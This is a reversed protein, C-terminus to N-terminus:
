IKEKRINEVISGGRIQAMSYRMTVWTIVFVGFICFMVAFWPFSYGFGMSLMMFRHILYSAACGLPLGFILAKVSCLISELGLMRYLGKHTMGVSRLVAFEGSRSLVNASITSIVSTLGILTLMFAFGYIFVKILNIIGRIAETAEGVDYVEIFMEVEGNKPIFEDAATKAHELFGSVDETNAFWNYYMADLEPVIVTLESREGTFGYLLEEPVGRVEGHLKLDTSPIGASKIQITQNEFLYPTLTENKGSRAKYRYNNVLINSGQSVGAQECLKAYSLPDATLLWVSVEYLGNTTHEGLIQAMEPSIMNEPLVASAARYFGGVGILSTDSFKRLRATIENAAASKVPTYKISLDENAEGFTIEYASIVQLSANANINPYLFNTISDVQASIGGVTVFLIVSVTLSIVAARFSRRSRKLAKIALVGEFGFLKKAFGNAGYTNAPVKMYPRLNYKFRNIGTHTINLSIDKSSRIAEMASIKAARYAPLMASILVTIFAAVASLAVIQWVVVYEFVWESGIGDIKNWSAFLNNATKVGAFNVGLGAAIGVPIGIVSLMLGEYIVTLAIQRNTAGTSKLIGFQATREGASVRFANTVVNVSIAIIIVSIVVGVGVFSAFYASGDYSGSVAMGDKTFLAYGSALFGYVANIIATSLVIGLLTWSTRKRNVTLQSYALKACLNM